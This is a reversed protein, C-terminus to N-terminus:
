QKGVLTLFESRVAPDSKFIGKLSSTIMISNQKEVGRCVMCFHKAEIMCAAGKPKLNEMLATTIQSTLREQIQLRRAYIELVRALKSIGVVGDNPIYAIHAKGFFPQMHHECTSYFEIDKLVIMEDSAEEKFVKLVDKVEKNYGSFIHAYSKVVRSPTELLGERSPDEGIFQLIRKINEEPGTEGQAKEWPFVIWDNEKIPKNHLVVFEKGYKEHALRTAGSDIIDDVIIDAEEPTDVIDILYAAASKIALAAYIGGRPVGYVKTSGSVPEHGASAMMARTHIDSWSLEIRNISDQTNTPKTEM